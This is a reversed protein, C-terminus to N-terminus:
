VYPTTPLTLHTYSVPIRPLVCRCSSFICGTCFLFTVSTLYSHLQYWPILYLSLRRLWLYGVHRLFTALILYIVSHTLPCSHSALRLRRSPLRLRCSSFCSGSRDAHPLIIISMLYAFRFRSSIPVVCDFDPVFRLRCFAFIYDAYSVFTGTM